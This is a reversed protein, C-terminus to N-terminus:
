IALASGTAAGLIVVLWPQVRWFVLLLFAVLGIALDLTSTIGGTWVPTYLAALLLGVVAANGGAARISRGGTRAAHGPLAARWHAAPVIAPRHRCPVDAQWAVRQATSGPRLAYSRNLLLSGSAASTRALGLMLLLPGAVGGALVVAALWPPLGGRRLPAEKAPLGIAARGFHVIALGLGAGLYMLGALLQTDVTGLLVKAFPASAGFLVASALALSM